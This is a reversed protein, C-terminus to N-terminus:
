YNDAIRELVEINSSYKWQRVLDVLRSYKNEDLENDSNLFFQTAPTIFNDSQLEDLLKTYYNFQPAILRPYYASRNIYNQQSQSYQYIERYLLGPILQKILVLKVSPLHHSQLPRGDLNSYALRVYDRWIYLPENERTQFISRIGVGPVYRWIQVFGMADGTSELTLLEIYGNGSFDGAYVHVLDGTAEIKGLVQGKADLLMLLRTSVKYNKLGVIVLSLGSSATLVPNPVDRARMESKIWYSIDLDDASLRIIGSKPPAISCLAKWQDRMAYPLKITRNFTAPVTDYPLLEGNIRGGNDPNFAYESQAESISSYVLTLFVVIILFRM